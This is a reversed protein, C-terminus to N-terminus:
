IIINKKELVKVYKIYTDKLQLTIAHIITRQHRQQLQMEINSLALIYAINKASNPMSTSLLSTLSLKLNNKYYKSMIDKHYHQYIESESMYKKIIKKYTKVKWTHLNM